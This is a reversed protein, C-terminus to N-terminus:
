SVVMGWSGRAVNVVAAVEPKLRCSLTGSASPIIMGTVRSEVPATATQSASTAPVAVAHDYIDSGGLQMTTLTPPIAWSYRLYTASAPGTVSLTHGTTTATAYVLLSFEFYYETGASVAVSLGTVTQWTASAASSWLATTKLLTAPM